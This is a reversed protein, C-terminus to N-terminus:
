HVGATCSAPPSSLIVIQFNVGMSIKHLAVCFRKSLMSFIAYGDSGRNPSPNQTPYRLIVERYYSRNKTYPVCFREGEFFSLNNKRLTNGKKLSKTYYFAGSKTIYGCFHTQKKNNNAVAHLPRTGGGGRSLVDVEKMVHQSHIEKTHLTYYRVVLNNRNLLLEYQLQM